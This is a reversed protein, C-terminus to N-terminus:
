INQSFLTGVTYVYKGHQPLGKFCEEVQEKATLVLKDISKESTDQQLKKEWARIEAKHKM